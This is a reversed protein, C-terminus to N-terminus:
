LANLRRVIASVPALRAQRGSREVGWRQVGQLVPLTGPAFVIATGAAEAIQAARDLAAYAEDAGADAPISLDRDAYPVSMAGAMAAAVVDAGASKGVMAYGNQSLVALVGRLVREDLVAGPGLTNTAGVAMWLRSMTAQAQDAIELDTMGPRIAGATGDGVAIQALVEYGALGAEAALEPGRATDAGVAVTLPMNLSLLTEPEIAQPGPDSLVIAILPQGPQAEFPAANLALAPGDLAIPRGDGGPVELVQEPNADPIESPTPPATPAPPQGPVGPVVALDSGIQGGQSADAGPDPPRLFRGVSRDDGQGTGDGALRPTDSVPWAISLGTLVAITLVLGRLMGGLFGFGGGSM